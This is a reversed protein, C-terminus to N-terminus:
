GPRLRKRLAASLATRLEEVPLGAPLSRLAEELAAAVRVDLDADEEAPPREAVRRDVTARLAEVEEALRALRAELTTGPDRGLVLWSVDAGCARAVAALQEVSPQRQGSEWSVVTGPRVGVRAALEKLTLNAAKRASRLRAGLARRFEASGRTSAM